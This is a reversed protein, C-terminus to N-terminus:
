IGTVGVAALAGHQQRHQRQVVAANPEANLDRWTIRMNDEANVARQTLALARQREIDDVSWVSFRHGLTFDTPGDISSKWAVHPLHEAEAPTEIVIPKNYARSNTPLHNFFDALNRRIDCLQKIHFDKSKKSGALLDVDGGLADQLWDYADRVLPTYVGNMSDTPLPRRTVAHEKWLAAYRNCEARIIDITYRRGCAGIQNERHSTRFIAMKREEEPDVVAPPTRFLYRSRKRPKFYDPNRSGNPVTPTSHKAFYLKLRADGEQALRTFYL